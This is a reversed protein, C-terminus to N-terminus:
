IFGKMAILKAIVKNEKTPIGGIIPKKALCITNLAAKSLPSHRLAGRMRRRPLSRAQRRSQADRIEERSQGGGLPRRDRAGAGGAHDM